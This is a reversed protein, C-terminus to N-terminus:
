EWILKLAPDDPLGTALIQQKIAERDSEPAAKYEALLEQVKSLTRRFAATAWDHLSQDGVMLDDKNPALQLAIGAAILASRGGDTTVHALMDKALRRLADRQSLLKATRKELEGGYWDAGRCKELFAGDRSAAALHRKTRALVTDFPTQRRNLIYRGAEEMYFLYFSEVGVYADYRSVANTRTSSVPPNDLADCALVKAVAATDAWADLIASGAEIQQLANTAVSLHGAAEVMSRYRENLTSFAYEIRPDRSRVDAAPLALEGRAVEDFRASQMDQALGAYQRLSKSLAGVAELLSEVHARADGSERQRAKELGATVTDVEIPWKRLGELVDFRRSEFLQDNLGQKVAGAEDLLKALYPSPSASLPAMAGILAEHRGEILRRAMVGEDVIRRSPLFVELLRSTQLAQEALGAAEDSWGWAMDGQARLDNLIGAAKSWNGKELSSVAEQWSAHTQQWLAVREAAEEAKRREDEKGAIRAAKDLVDRAKDFQEDAALNQAKAILREAGPACARACLALLLVAVAAAAGWTMWRKREAQLVGSGDDFVFSFHAVYVRDGAKLQVEDDQELKKGNVLTENTSGLDRIWFEGGRSRIEAHHHSVMSNAIHLSSTPDAGITFVDSGIPYVQGKVEGTQGLLRAPPSVVAPPAPADTAAAAGAVILTCNGIEICDGITLERERIREGHLLIGNRSDLDCVFLRDDRKRVEAHRGSVLSLEQPVVWECGPRRGIVLSEPLESLPSEYLTRNDYTLKLRV